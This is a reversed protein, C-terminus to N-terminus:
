YEAYRDGTAEAYAKMVATLLEEQSVEGAYYSYKEFIAALVDLHEVDLSSVTNESEERLEQLRQLYYFRDITTTVTYTLLIAAATAISVIILLFSLTFRKKEGTQTGRARFDSGDGFFSSQDEDHNWYM